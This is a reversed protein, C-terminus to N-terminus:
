FSAPIQGEECEEPVDWNCKCKNEQGVFKELTVHWHKHKGDAPHNEKRDSSVAAVSKTTWSAPFPEEGGPPVVVAKGASANMAFKGEVACFFLGNPLGLRSTGSKRRLRRPSPPHGLKLQNCRSEINPM